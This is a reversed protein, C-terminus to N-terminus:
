KKLNAKHKLKQRRNVTRAYKLSKPARSQYSRLNFPRVAVGFYQGAVDALTGGFRTEPKTAMYKPDVFPISEPYVSRGGGAYREGIRAEPFARILAALMRRGGAHAFLDTEEGKKLDWWNGLFDKAIDEDPHIPVEGGRLTDVGFGALASQILPSAQGLQLSGAVAGQPGLPNFFASFPNLGTTSLYSLIGRDNIGLKIAGKMWPPVTGLEDDTKRSEMMGMQALLLTRGPYDVPLRYALGSIFKYWGWFPIGQRIYRRETPGLTAFNYSFRNVDDLAREVMEKDNMLVDLYEDVTKPGRAREVNSIITGSENMKMKAEKSLSQVFSARRFYDETAQVKRMAWRSIPGTKFGYAEGFGQAGSELLELGIVSGLNVGAAEAEDFAGRAKLEKAVKYHRPDVGKITTLVTSGVATNLAWRPMMALTWTRWWNHARAWVRGAGKEYPRSATALDRQYQAVRRPVIVADTKMAGLTQDLATEMAEAGMRAEMEGSDVDFGQQAMKHITDAVSLEKNFWKIPAEPSVGVWEEGYKNSIQDQSMTGPETVAEGNHDKLAVRNLLEDNFGREVVDRTHKAVMDVYQRADPRHVGALVPDPNPRLSMAPEQFVSQFSINETDFTNKKSRRWDPETGTLFKRVRNPDDWFFGSAVQSPAVQPDFPTEPATPTAHEVPPEPPQEPTSEVPSIEEKPPAWREFFSGEHPQNQLDPFREYDIHGIPNVRASGKIPEFVWHPDM